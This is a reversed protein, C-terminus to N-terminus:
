EENHEKRMSNCGYACSMLCTNAVTYTLEQIMSTSYQHQYATAHTWIGTGGTRSLIRSCYDNGKGLRRVGNCAVHTRHLTTLRNGTLRNGTFNGIVPKLKWNGIVSKWTAIRMCHRLNVPKPRIIRGAQIDLMPRSGDRFPSQAGSTM